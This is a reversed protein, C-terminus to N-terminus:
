EIPESLPMCFFKCKEGRRGKQIAWFTVFVSVLGAIHSAPLQGDVSGKYVNNTEFSLWAEGIVLWKLALKRNKQETFGDVATYSTGLKFMCM